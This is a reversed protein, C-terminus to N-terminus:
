AVVPVDDNERVWSRSPRDALTVTTSYKSPPAPASTTGQAFVLDAIVRREAQDRVLAEVRLAHCTARVVPRNCRSERNVLRHDAHATVVVTRSIVGLHEVHAALVFQARREQTRTVLHVIKAGVLKM